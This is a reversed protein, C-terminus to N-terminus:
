GKYNVNCKALSRPYQRMVCIEQAYHEIDKNLLSHTASLTLRDLHTDDLNGLHVFQKIIEKAVSPASSAKVIECRAYNDGVFSVGAARLDADEGPIQQAGYLPKASVKAQRRYEPIFRGIHDIAKQTRLETEQTPWGQDIKSILHDPLEPQASSESSEVLGKDFLTISETMGHLQYYGDPYPTFQAMGNPTGREGFFVLEPWISDNGQWQTVYAAKFEVLRKRSFGLMDDVMGTRFGAANILFDFECHHSAGQHQYEVLWQDNKQTVQVVKSSTLINCNTFKQLTLEASAALRFLNVGYEQVMIIPFKLQSLDVHHAVPIMWEELSDPMTVIPKNKLAEVEERTFIKFYDEPEGLVRNKPDINVLRQYEQRLKELRSFLNEPEGKDNTPVAVITPRYDISHPYIRLLEISENLLTLCQQESIERYLNGGAHLHCIPPGNVLTPGKEILTVDLGLEGLSLAVTAGAVGGGVIGIKPQKLTNQITNSM